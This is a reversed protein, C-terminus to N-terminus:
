AGDEDVMPIPRLPWPQNKRDKCDYAYSYYKGWWERDGAAKADGAFKMGLEYVTQYQQKNHLFHLYWRRVHPDTKGREEYAQTILFDPGFGSDRNILFEYWLKQELYGPDTQKLTPNGANPVRQLIFERLGGPDIKLKLACLALYFLVKEDINRSCNPELFDYAKRYERNYLYIETQAFAYFLFSSGARYTIKEDVIRQAVKPEGRELYARVMWYLRSTRSTRKNEEAAQIMSEDLPTGRVSPDFPKLRKRQIETAIPIGAKERWFPGSDQGQSLTLLTLLTVVM